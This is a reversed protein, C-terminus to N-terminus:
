NRKTLFLAQKEDNKKNSEGSERRIDNIQAFLEVNKGTKGGTQVAVDGRADDTMKDKSRVRNADQM